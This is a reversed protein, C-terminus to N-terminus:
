SSAPAPGRDIGPYSRTPPIAREKVSASVARHKPITTYQLLTTNGTVAGAIVLREARPVENASPTHQGNGNMM